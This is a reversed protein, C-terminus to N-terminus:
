GRSSSSTKGNREDFYPCMRKKEALINENFRSLIDKREQVPSHKWKKQAKKANEVMFTLNSISTPEIEEFVEETAPNVLKLM